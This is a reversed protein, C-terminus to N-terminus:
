RRTWRRRRVARVAGARGGLEVDPGGRGVGVLALLVVPQSWRLVVSPRVRKVLQETAVSGVGALIPVAALFVPLLADSIGYRDQIAPIRTM